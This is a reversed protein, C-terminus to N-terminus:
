PVQYLLPLSVTPPAHTNLDPTEAGGALLALNCFERSM